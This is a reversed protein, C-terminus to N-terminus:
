YNSNSIVMYNDSLCISANVQDLFSLGVVFDYDDLPIVKISTKGTWDGLQHNVRKTVGKIPVSESNMTKIRGPENEIKLGLKHAARKSMFLDSAGIDVLTNLKRGAVIIDAFMLGYGMKDEVGELISSLNKNEVDSEVKVEM